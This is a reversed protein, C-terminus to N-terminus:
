QASWRLARQVDYEGVLLAIVREDEIFRSYIELPRDVSLGVVPVVQIHKCSWQLRGTEQGKSGDIVDYSVEASRGLSRAQDLAQESTDAKFVM